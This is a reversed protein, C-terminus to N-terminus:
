AKFFEHIFQVYINITKELESIEVYEIEGHATRQDPGHCVTPIGMEKVFIGADTVLKKGTLPIEVKTVQKVSQQLATVLPHDKAIRYGDRVKTLELHIRVGHKDAITALREEMQHKVADFDDDPGYRRVGEVSAYKPMQNYFSGSQIHGIFYSAYGIDEIAQQNLYKNELELAHIVDAMVHIPHPTEIPTFLQHSPDGEREVVIHFTASGMQAITCDSTAGEMVIAADAKLDIKEALAYLDEGRGGPSEHMSNAIVIWEGNIADRSAHLMRAAELICALSGKMDCTGRGYVKGDKVFPARHDLPIVDMHGNFILKKGDPNTNGQFRGILTPNNPIFEYTEVNFGVETLLQEYLAAIERTDGAHDQIRVLNLLNNIVLEIDTQKYLDPM